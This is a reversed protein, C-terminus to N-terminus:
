WSSWVNVLTPRGRFDALAIAEGALSAGELMPAQERDAVVPQTEPTTTPPASEETSGGCAALALAVVLVLLLGPLTRM